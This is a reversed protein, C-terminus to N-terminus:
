GAQELLALLERARAARSLRSRSVADLSPAALEGDRALAQLVSLAAATGEVDAPDVVIGADTDRILEAAAGGPPVLALIPREAALYEYVKGSLVGHGRGDAEPILLLLAESDRQLRLAERRPVFPLLELQNDVGLEAALARDRSRFDGVFRAQVPETLANLARLFTSPDRQGFFSGTHTIRFPQASVYALGDFDDFDCGNGVVEIPAASGIAGMEEQIAESVCVILDSRRAILRALANEGRLERRRHPHSAVADRLDAAWRTGTCAAVAAGVLHVSGPPSTTLIWDFKHEGVLRLAAHVSTLNWLVAADPVLLARAGIQAGAVAREFGVLQQLEEGPKRSRPGLNRARHVTIETPVDLSDDKQLWKPDDPALVHVEVGLRSLEGALKLPRQVGPGGAPPWYLSVILLRM